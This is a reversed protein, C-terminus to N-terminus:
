LYKKYGKNTSPSFGISEYFSCADLRDTETVLIIQTCNREKAITEIELFLIKGIGKRRYNKDIIMNEIVLFPKCDGYLDECVIGMVSGILNSEDIACLIIHTDNHKIKEFQKQMKEINSNKNWFQKYLKELQPIDEFQM